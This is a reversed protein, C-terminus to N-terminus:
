GIRDQRQRAKGPSVGDDTWLYMYIYIYIYVGFFLGLLLYM